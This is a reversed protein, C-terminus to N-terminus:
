QAASGLASAPDFEGVGLAYSNALTPSGAVLDPEHIANRFGEASFRRYANLWTVLAKVYAARSPSAAVNRATWENADAFENGPLISPWDVRRLHAYGNSQDAFYLDSVIAAGTAHATLRGLSTKTEDGDIVYAPVYHTAICAREWSLSALKWEYLRASDSRECGEISSWSISRNTLATRNVTMQLLASLRRDIFKGLVVTTMKVPYERLVSASLSATHISTFDNASLVVWEGAPVVLRKRAGLWGVTLPGPGAFRDGLGFEIAGSNDAPESFHKLSGSSLVAAARPATLM